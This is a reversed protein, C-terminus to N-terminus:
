LKCEPPTFGEPVDVVKGSELIKKADDLSLAKGQQQQKVKEHYDQLTFGERAWLWADDLAKLVIDNIKPNFNQTRVFHSLTQYQNFFHQQNMNVAPTEEIPVVNEQSM